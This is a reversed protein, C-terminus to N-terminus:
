VLAGETVGVSDLQIPTICELIGIRWVQQYQKAPGSRLHQRSVLTCSRIQSATARLDAKNSDLGMVQLRTWPSMQRWVKLIAKRWTLERGLLFGVYIRPANVMMMSVQSRMQIARVSGQPGVGQYIWGHPM